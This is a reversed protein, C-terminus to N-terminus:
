RSARHRRVSPQVLTPDRKVGSQRARPSTETSGSPQRSRNRRRWVIFVAVFLAVLGIAVSDPLGSATGPGHVEGAHAGVASASLFLISLATALATAIVRTRYAM